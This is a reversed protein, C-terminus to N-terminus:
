PRLEIKGGVINLADMTYEWDNRDNTHLITPTQEAAM